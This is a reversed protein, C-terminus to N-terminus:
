STVVPLAFVKQNGTALNKVTVTGNAIEDGGLILAYRSRERDARKLQAKFGKSEPEMDASFGASRLTGPSM